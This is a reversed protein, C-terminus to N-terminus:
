FRLSLCSLGGDQKKFESMQLEIIQFGAEIIQKKTIPHGAPVICYDNVRICNAAYEEEPPVIIKKYDQFVPHHIFEGAAAMTNNGIYTIGTKLHLFTQLPVLTVQYNESELIRQLQEAGALNTRDSIGIYFRNDVQLVDGGDLTGPSEIRFIKKFFKRLVPEIEVTEGKRTKAGPNTIVAFDSTLVATDEVFTSDPFDNNEPLVTVEVGATKLAEVYAHHQKLAEKLVPVGLNSSTLGNIYTAGPVKVIANKFIAM